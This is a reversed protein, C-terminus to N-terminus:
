GQLMSYYVVIIVNRNINLSSIRDKSGFVGCQGETKTQTGHDDAEPHNGIIDPAKKPIGMTPAQLSLVRLRRPRRRGKMRQASGKTKIPKPETAMIGVSIGWVRFPWNEWSSGM